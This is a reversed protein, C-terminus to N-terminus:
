NQWYWTACKAAVGGLVTAFHFPNLNSKNFIKEVYKKWSIYCIDSTHLYMYYVMVDDSM